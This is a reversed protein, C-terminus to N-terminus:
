TGHVKEEGYSSLYKIIGKYIEIGRSVANGHRTNRM